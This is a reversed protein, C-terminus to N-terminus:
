YFVTRARHRPRAKYEPRQGRNWLLYDLGSATVRERGERLSAVMLEVAQLACARIEIEEPSHADVLREADIRAALREDYRLVGDV